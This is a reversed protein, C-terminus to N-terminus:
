WEKNLIKFAVDEYPPGAHFRLIAFEKEDAQELFYKPTKTKDILDPYFVTFKYGQIKKPPPNDFDYHTQNYKNWDWGTRVRNFYRPKRPRYKDQWWYTEGPLMVEEKTDMQEEKDEFGKEKEAKAMADDKGAREDVFKFDSKNRETDDDEDDGRAARAARAEARLKSVLALQKQCLEKHTKAISARARQLTVEQAMQEWYSIDGRKGDQITKDIDIQLFDLEAESKGRFLEQVDSSVSKHVTSESSSKQRKEFTVISKLSSWFLQYAGKKNIEFQLYAEVDRALQDLQESSLGEVLTVPDRLEVDLNSLTIELADPQKNNTSTSEILLINKAISDIPQQRNETLRIKSRVRTQELIFNEEKEQWDGYTAAERLRQEEDRLREMEELENEREERRKRVRDIDHMLKLRHAETDVEEKKGESKDKTVKKGWVFPQLLNSDGFPNIDNSYGLMKAVKEAKKGAKRIERAAPDEDERERKKAKDKGM